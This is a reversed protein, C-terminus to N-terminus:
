GRSLEKARKLAAQVAETLSGGKQLVELGAETTGGKSAVQNKLEAPQMHWAEVTALSGRVINEALVHALKKDFKVSEAALTLEPIFFKNSYKEWENRPINEVRHCWFGPGSGSVATAENMMEESLIFVIGLFRFLKLAFNLDRDQAYRGKSLFSIGRGVRAPLNPMVRIVKVEGLVKEIDTTAIGAAISIILKDKVISKIENLVSDFDQPKVAIIVVDTKSVLDKVNDAIEINSLNQIKNKDKDFTYVRYKRRIREAIASGMNGYGIIGIKKRLFAFM